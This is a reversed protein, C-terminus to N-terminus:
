LRCNILPRLRFHLRSTILVHTTIRNHTLMKNSLKRINLTVGRITCINCSSNQKCNASLVHCSGGRRTVTRKRSGRILLIQIPSLLFSSADSSCRCSIPPLIDSYQRQPQSLKFLTHLYFYPINCCNPSPFCKLPIVVSALNKNKISGGGGGEKVRHRLQNLCKVVLRFTAPEIGSPTM